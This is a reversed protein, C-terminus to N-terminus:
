NMSTNTLLHILITLSLMDACGGPSINDHIFDENLRKLSEISFRELLQAGQKKIKEATEIGKRYYVNTDDLMSMIHLLTKHHQYPDDKLSRYFPLWDNFLQSYGSIANELAGSIPHKKKVEDGHTGTARPFQRALEMIGEQLDKISISGHHAYLYAAVSLTLGISFLAGKHTNVGGTTSLMDKEARLGISKVESFIPKDGNSCLEYFYPRLTQISLSMLHYDM